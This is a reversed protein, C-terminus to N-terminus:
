VHINHKGIYEILKKYHLQDQMNVKKFINSLSPCQAYNLFDNYFEEGASNELKIALQFARERTYNSDFNKIIDQIQKINVSLKTSIEILQHEKPLKEDFDISPKLDMFVQAHSLEEESMIKWFKEDKTNNEAFLAYLKSLLTELKIAEDIIRIKLNEIM